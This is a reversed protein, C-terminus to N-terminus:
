SGHNASGRSLTRCLLKSVPQSRRSLGCRTPQCSSKGGVNGPHHGPVAGGHVLRCNIDFPLRSLTDADINTKGPRYKIVFRFDALEGVWRHGIATINATSMVYTLPNKDTYVLFSPTYFLYDCIAWKLALFELNGSHLHYNQEAPTLTRSGYAIVSLNAGQRQYLVAGLLQESTDTHLM